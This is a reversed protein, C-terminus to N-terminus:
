ASRRAARPRPPACRRRRASSSSSRSSSSRAGPPCPRRAASRRRARPTTSHHPANDATNNQNPTTQLSSRRSVCPRARLSLSLPPSLARSPTPHLVRPPRPPRSPPRGPPWQRRRRRRRRRRGCSRGGVAEAAAGERGRRPTAPRAAAPIPAPACWAARPRAGPGFARWRAMPGARSLSLPVASPPVLSRRPDREDFSQPVRPGIIAVAGRHGPVGSGDAVRQANLAM